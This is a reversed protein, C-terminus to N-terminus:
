FFICPANTNNQAMCHHQLAHMLTKSKPIEHIDNSSFLKYYVKKYKKFNM